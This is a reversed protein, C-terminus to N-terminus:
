KTSVDSVGTTLSARKRKRTELKTFVIRWFRYGEKTDCWVFAMILLMGSFTYGFDKSKQYTSKSIRSGLANHHIKKIIFNKTQTNIGKMSRIAATLPYFDKHIKQKYLM